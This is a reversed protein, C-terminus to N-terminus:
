LHPVSAYLWHLPTPCIASLYLGSQERKVALRQASNSLFRMGDHRCSM